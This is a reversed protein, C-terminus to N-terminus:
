PQEERPIQVRRAVEAIVHDSRDLGAFFLWAQRPSDTDHDPQQQDIVVRLQLSWFPADLRENGLLLDFSSADIMAGDWTRAPSATLGVSEPDNLVLDAYLGLMSIHEPTARIEQGEPHALRAADRLLGASAAALIALLVTALLAEVITFAARHLSM